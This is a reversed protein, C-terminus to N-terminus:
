TYNLDSRLKNLLIELSEMEVKNLSNKMKTKQPYNEIEKMLQIGKNTIMVDISRRDFISDRRILLERNVLSDVVRSVNTKRDALFATITNLSIPNPYNEILSQLVNYQNFTISYLKLTELKEDLYINSIYVLSTAIKQLPSKLKLSAVLKLNNEM